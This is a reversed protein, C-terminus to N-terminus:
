FATWISLKKQTEKSEFPLILLSFKLLLLLIMIKKM